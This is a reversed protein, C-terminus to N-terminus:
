MSLGTTQHVQIPSSVDRLCDAGQLVGEGGHRSLDIARMVVPLTLFLPADLSAGNEGADLLAPPM